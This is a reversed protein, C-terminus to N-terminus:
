FEPLRSRRFSVRRQVAASSVDAFSILKFVGLVKRQSVRIPYWVVPPLLSELNESLAASLKHINDLPNIFIANTIHGTNDVYLSPLPGVAIYGRRPPFVGNPLIATPELNFKINMCVAPGDTNNDGDGTDGVALTFPNQYMLELTDDHYPYVTIDLLSYEPPVVVKFKPWVVNKIANALEGAGGVTLGDLDLGLGTRYWLINNIRNGHYSGNLVCKYIAM